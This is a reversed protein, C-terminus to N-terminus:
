ATDLRNRRWLWIAELSDVAAQLGYGSALAWVPWAVLGWYSNSLQGVVLLFGVYTGAALRVHLPTRSSLAGAVILTLAFATVWSPAKFLWAHWEAKGILSTLDGAHLWSSTRALDTPQQYASVQIAHWAFYAAYCCAGGSWAVVERWRRQAAAAVACAVCYPAALERLFLAMLGCVIAVRPRQWAYMCVSLGIIIGAWVEGMVLAGYWVTPLVTGVLMVQSGLIWLSERATVRITAAFLMVGAFVLVSRSISDPVAALALLLLPTRWNFVSHEHYGRGRLEDGFVVYYSEGARLRQQMARFTAVDGAGQPLGSLPPPAPASVLAGFVLLGGLVTLLARRLSMELQKGM